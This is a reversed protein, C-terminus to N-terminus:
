PTTSGPVGGLVAGQPAAGPPQLSAKLADLAPGVEGAFQVAHTTYLDAVKELADFMERTSERGKAEVDCRGEADRFENMWKVRFTTWEADVRRVSAARALERRQRELDEFLRVAHARCGQADLATGEIRKRGPTMSEVSQLVSVTVAIGVYSAFAIYLVWMLGRFPRFRPDGKAQEESM